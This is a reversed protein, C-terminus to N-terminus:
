KGEAPYFVAPQWKEVHQYLSVPRSGVGKLSQHYAFHDTLQWLPVVAVEQHAIRHIQRLKDGVQLWDTAQELQRLALSMYPSAGGSIGEQGLLRRADVLPEWMALEAYLLDIDGSMRNVAGPPLERLTVSIGVLALQRQISTSALRAIEHPPYALVLEPMGPLKQGQKEMATALQSFAVRALAIAMHPEYGRPEIWQDYAYGMPDDLSIGPSFPGSVVQCGEEQKGGLLRDLVAERHIGYVLARRFTRRALLPHRPNPVLCHVLPMAYPKVVAGKMGRLKDLDWPNVRDIVDIRHQQLGWIAQTGKEYCRELIERPQTPRAAFYGENAVYVTEDDTQSDIRYPGNSPDSPESGAERGYPAVTTQLLARPQVYPRHLDAHVTYVDEVSVAELLEAWEVRYAPDDSDAMALLRRSLDYGTLTAEGTSWRLGLNIQFALRLGLERVEMKGLPSVYEGGEIGPGDFEMLTRYRLRRSRRSAWDDVQGLDAAVAPLSVGVVVRPYQQHISDLFERAGPLDPWIQTLRRAIMHADRLKGADAARRAEALLQGALQQFDSEWKNVVAHEPFMEALNRLLGRAALYNEGAVHQEVLKGTTLGLANELEPRKPNRSYLERLVALAAEYEGDRHLTKAEEYLYDETSEDLGPLTPDKEKLYKFCDYAEALKGAKVLKNAEALILDEFLELKEIAFWQIEYPTDPDELLRVVLKDTRRPNEPVRRGPLDLPQVKLVLNDNAKNLTIQDYPEQEYLPLQAAAPRALALWGAGLAVLVAVRGFLLWSRSAAARRRDGARTSTIWCHQAPSMM